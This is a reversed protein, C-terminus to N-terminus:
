NKDKKKMQVNKENNGKRTKMKKKTKRIDQKENKKM